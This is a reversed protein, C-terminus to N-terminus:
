QKQQRSWRTAICQDVRLCVYVRHLHIIARSLSLSCYERAICMRKKHYSFLQRRQRLTTPVSAISFLRISVVANGKSSSSPRDASICSVAAYSRNYDILWDTFLYIGNRERKRELLSSICKSQICECVLKYFCSHTEEREREREWVCVCVCVDYM